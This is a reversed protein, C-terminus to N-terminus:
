TTSYYYGSSNYTSACEATINTIGTLNIRGAIFTGFDNLSIVNTLQGKLIVDTTENITRNYFIRVYTGNAKASDTFFEFTLTAAPFTDQVRHWNLAEYYAGMIEDHTIFTVWKPFV